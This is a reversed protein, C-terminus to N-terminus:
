AQIGLMFSHKKTLSFGKAKSKATPFVHKLGTEVHSFSLFCLKKVTSQNSRYVDVGPNSVCLWSQVGFMGAASM